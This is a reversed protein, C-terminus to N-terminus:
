PWPHYFDGPRVPSEPDLYGEAVMETALDVGVYRIHWPEYIFEDEIPRWRNSYPWVATIKLPYSIIFGYKYANEQVWQFLSLNRTDLSEVPLGPWAIDFATGLQHESHGARAIFEDVRDPWNRQERRYVHGQYNIDRYGSFVAMRLGDQEAATIMEELADRAVVSEGPAYWEPLSHEADVLVDIPPGLVLKMVIYLSILLQM